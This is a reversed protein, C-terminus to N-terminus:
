SLAVLFKEIIIKSFIGQKLLYTRKENDVANLDAGHVALFKIGEMKGNEAAVHLPTREYGERANIAAGYYWLVEM